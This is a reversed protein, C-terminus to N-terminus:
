VNLVYMWGDMGDDLWGNMCGHMRRSMWWVLETTWDYVWDNM